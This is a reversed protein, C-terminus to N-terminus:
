AGAWKRVQALSAPGIGDIALLAGDSAARVQDISTYGAAALAQVLRQSPVWVSLDQGAGAAEAALLPGSDDPCPLVLPTLQGGAELARVQVELRVVEGALLRVAATVDFAAGTAIGHIDM